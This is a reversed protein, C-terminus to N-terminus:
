PATPYLVLWCLFCVLWVCLPLVSILVQPTEFVLVIESCLPITLRTASIPSEPRLASFSVLPQSLTTVASGSSWLGQPSHLASAWHSSTLSSPSPLSSAPLAPKSPLLLQPSCFPDPFAQNPEPTNQEQTKSKKKKKERKLPLHQIM